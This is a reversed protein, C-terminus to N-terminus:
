QLYVPRIFHSHTVTPVWQCFSSSADYYSALIVFNHQLKRSALVSCCKPWCKESRQLRCPITCSSEQSHSSAHTSRLSFICSYCSTVTPMHKFRPRVFCGIGRKFTCPKM